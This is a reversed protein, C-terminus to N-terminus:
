PQHAPADYTFAASRGSASFEVDFWWAQAPLADTSHLPGLGELAKLLDEKPVAGEVTTGYVGERTSLVSCLKHNRRRERTWLDVLRRPTANRSGHHGVKYLDVAALRGRLADDKERGEAGLARDLSYSWNEVQADGTLLLSRKGVTLLLVVSTNNLVDDFGEVIELVQRPAQDHMKDLLWSARGLGDPAAVLERAPILTDKDTGADLEPEILNEGALGLWYEASSSAYSKMGPVQELTPPGLVEISVGPLLDAVDVTDGAKVWRSREAPVWTELMAIADANKVGLEALQKARRALVRADGDLQLDVKTTQETLADLLDFLKHSEEGLDADPQPRATEPMDTWPRIILSPQLPRLQDRATAGGFGRVHDQHRHSVVVVDLHGGCHEAILRAVQNMTPGDEAGAKTGFDVLLHRETRGDALPTRYVITILLCDGFGVKYARIRVSSPKVM